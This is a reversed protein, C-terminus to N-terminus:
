RQKPADVGLALHIVVTKWGIAHVQISETRVDGDDWLHYAEEAEDM